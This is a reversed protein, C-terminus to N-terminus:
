LNDEYERIKKKMFGILIGAGGKSELFQDWLQGLKEVYDEMAPHELLEGIRDLQTETPLPQQRQSPNAILHDNILERMGEKTDARFSNVTPSDPIRAHWRIGSTNPDAPYIDIGKYTWPERKPM